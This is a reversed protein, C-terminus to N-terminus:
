IPKLDIVLRGPSALYFIEASVSSKFKIEVSLTEPDPLFNANKVYRGGDPFKLTPVITTSFFDMYLKNESSSLHGYLRPIEKTTFDFVVREHGEARNYSRRISVLQSSRNQAGSHFIGRELYVSKKRSDIKWIREKMLNQAHSSLNVLLLLLSTSYCLLRM